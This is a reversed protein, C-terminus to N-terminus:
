KCQSYETPDQKRDSIVMAYRRGQSNFAEGGRPLIQGTFVYMGVLGAIVTALIRM